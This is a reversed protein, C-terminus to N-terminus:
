TTVRQAETLGLASLVAPRNLAARGTATAGGALAARIATDAASDAAAVKAALALYFASGEAQKVVDGDHGLYKYVALYFVHNLAAEVKGTSATLAAAEGVLSADRASVLAAVVPQRLETTFDKGRKEATLAPGQEQAVFFAWAEDVNHAAGKQPDLDKAAVKEAAAHLEGLVKEALIVTIGKDVVQARVAPSEGGAIAAAVAATAPHEKALGALTRFTGDSKKSGGGESYVRQVAAWDVPEGKKAPELLERIRAVDIGIAAHSAVDSGAVYSAAAHAATSATATPTPTPRDASQTANGGCATLALASILLTPVTSRVLNAKRRAM